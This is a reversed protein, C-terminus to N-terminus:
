YEKPLGLCGDRVANADKRTVPTGSPPNRGLRRSSFRAEDRPLGPRQSRGRGQRDFGGHACKPWRRHERPYRMVKRHIGSPVASQPCGTPCEASTRDKAGTRGKAGTTGAREEDGRARRGQAGRDTLCRLKPISRHFRGVVPDNSPGPIPRTAKTTLVWSPTVPKSKPLQDLPLPDLVASMVENVSHGCVLLHWSL